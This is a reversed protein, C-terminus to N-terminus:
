LQFDCVASLSMPEGTQPHSFEITEAHLMMRGGCQENEGYLRDGVIPYGMERCHLRLQHTRGTVPRLSLLTTTQLRSVVSWYTVAPKGREYDIVQRPRTAPDGRMPIDIVGEQGPIVGQVLAVYEKKVERDHFQRNLERQAPLGIALLMIGSTYCDLRHVIKVDAFQAQLRTAVSDQKDEGRGPVALLGEPKNVAIFCDDQYLIEPSMFFGSHIVNM